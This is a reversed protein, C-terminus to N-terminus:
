KKELTTAIRKLQNVMASLQISSDLKTELNEVHLNLIHVTKKIKILMVFAIFFLIFSVVAGIFLAMNEDIM